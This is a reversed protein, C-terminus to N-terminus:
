EQSLTFAITVTMVVPVAEGNLLTPTFRWQRVADVAAADLLPVSRLVRVEGVSGEATIVTELIVVGSTRAARAIAPYEPAVHVIKQPARIAGGVRVPAPAPAPAPPPLIAPLNGRDAIVVGPAADVGPTEFFDDAPVAPLEARVGDPEEVPAANLAPPRPRAAAAPPRPVPPPVATVLVFTTARRPEPLDTTAIIPVVVVAMVALAHVLVSLLVTYTQM